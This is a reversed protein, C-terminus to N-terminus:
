PQVERPNAFAIPFRAQSDGSEVLFAQDILNFGDHVGQAGTYSRALKRDDTETGTRKPREMRCDATRVDM